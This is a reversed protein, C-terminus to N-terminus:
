LASDHLSGSGDQGIAVEQVESREDRDERTPGVSCNASNPQRIQRIRTVMGVVKEQVFLHNLKRVASWLGARSKRAYVQHEFVLSARGNLFHCALDMLLFGWEKEGFEDKDDRGPIHKHDKGYTCARDFCMLWATVMDYRCSPRPLPQFAIIAYDVPTVGLLLTMKPPAQNHAMPQLGDAFFGRQRLSWM